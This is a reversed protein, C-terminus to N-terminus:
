FKNPFFRRFLRQSRYDLRDYLSYNMVLSKLNEPCNSIQKLLYADNIYFNEISDPLNNIYNFGTTQLKLTILGSPLDDLKSMSFFDDIYLKKLGVKLSSFSNISRCSILCLSHIIGMSYDLNNIYPCYSLYLDLSKSKLGVSLSTLDCRIFSVRSVSLDLNTDSSFGTCNEFIVEDIFEPIKEFSPFTNLGFIKLASVFEPIRSFDFDQTDVILRYTYNGYNISFNFDTYEYTLFKLFKEHFSSNNLENLYEFQQILTDKGLFSEFLYNFIDDDNENVFGDTLILKRCNIGESITFVQKSFFILNIFPLRSENSSCVLKFLDLVEMLSSRQDSLCKLLQKAATLEQNERFTLENLSGEVNQNQLGTSLHSHSM